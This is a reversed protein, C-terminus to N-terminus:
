GRLVEAKWHTWNRAYALDRCIGSAIYPMLGYMSSIPSAVGIEKARATGPGKAAPGGQPPGSQAVIAGTFVGPKLAADGGKGEFTGGVHAGVVIGGLRVRYTQKSDPVRFSFEGTLAEPTLALGSTDADLTTPAGKGGSTSLDATVKGRQAKGERVSWAVQIRRKWEQGFALVNELNLSVDCSTILAAASPTISGSLLGGVAGTGCTGKYVGAVSQNDFRADLVFTCAVPKGDAPVWQDPNLTVALTGKLAGAEFKLGAPDAKHCARNWSPSEGFAQRWQGERCALHVDLAKAQGSIGAPLAGELVLTWAGDVPKTAAAPAVPPAAKAPAAKPAPAQEVPKAASGKGGCGALVVASLAAAVMSMLHWPKPRM